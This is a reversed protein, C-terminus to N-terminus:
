RRPEEAAWARIEDSLPAVAAIRCTEEGSESPLTVEDGAARGALAEAVRSRCSIVRRPPDNDWEGLINVEDRVGGPRELVVRTGIGAREAPLGTFDTERVERLDREWDRQRQMLVKQHDKAAQYEFNESLDGYGRAHGIERSNAPILEELLERLQDQRRRYTRRSTLRAAAPPPSASEPAAASAANLDPYLRIMRGMITRRRGEDWGHSASVRMFLTRRQEATMAGMGAALWARDEFLARIQNLTRLRDERRPGELVDIAQGMLGAADGVDWAQRIDGRRCVWLMLEAPATRSRVTDRVLAAARDGAGEAALFSTAENLVAAPLRVLVDAVLGVTAPRDCEALLALLAEFERVGLGEAAATVTEPTRLPAASACIDMAEPPVAFRRAVMVARALIVPDTGRAGLAAFALRAGLAALQERSLSAAGAERELEQAMRLITALDREGALADFWGAGYEKERALLRLPENRRAPVDVLADAKLGKRAAEWFPKWPRDGLAERTLLDQLEPATLPGYSRLAIRVLEAPDSEILEALAEPDRHRRALLHDEGVPELTQAAYAFSMPHGPKRVFDVTIKRYFPDVRKVVGFGWTKDHCLAGAALSVLTELRALCAEPPEDTEFGCVKLFEAGERDAFASALAARCAPAFRAGGPKRAAWFRLLRVLERRAGSRALLGASLEACDDLRAADSAAAKMVMRLVRDPPPPVAADAAELLWAEIAAPSKDEQEPM